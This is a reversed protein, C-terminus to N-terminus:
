SVHPSDVCLHSRCHLGVAALQIYDTHSTTDCCLPVVHLCWIRSCIPSFHLPSAQFTEASTLSPLRPFFIHKRITWVSERLSPVVSSSGREPWGDVHLVGSIISFTCCISSCSRRSVSLNIASSNPMLLSVAWVITRSSKSLYFIQERNTGCLSVSSRSAFRISVEPSKMEMHSWSGNCRFFIRVSFSVQHYWNSGSHFRCDSAQHQCVEGRGFFFRRCFDFTLVSNIAKKLLLPVM